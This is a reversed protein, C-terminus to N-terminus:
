FPIKVKEIDRLPWSQDFYPELPAYLRLAAFWSHGPVTPIWNNELGKPATPAFYIDVSGDANKVLEHRSSRDALQEKNQVFSRTSTDYLTVSWFQKAPPAARPLWGALAGGPRPLEDHTTRQLSAL